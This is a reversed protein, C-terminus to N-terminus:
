RIPHQCAFPLGVGPTSIAVFGSLERRAPRLPAADATRSLLAPGGAGRGPQQRRRPAPLQIVM